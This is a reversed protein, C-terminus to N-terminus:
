LTLDVEETANTEYGLDIPEAELFRQAATKGKKKKRKEMIKRAYKPEESRILDVVERIYETRKLKVGRKVLHERFKDIERMTEVDIRQSVYEM